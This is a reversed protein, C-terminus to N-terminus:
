KRCLILKRFKFYYGRPVITSVLRIKDNAGTMGQMVIREFEHHKAKEAKPFDQLYRVSDVYEVTGQSMNQTWFYRQVSAGKLVLPNNKDQNFYKRHVTMNLEGQWCHIKYQQQINNMKVVLGVNEQKLRPITENEKDIAKIEEKTFATTIGKTKNRDEWVNVTFAESPLTQKLLVVCVSMKVSEFVRKKKNDREPFSDIVVLQTNNLIHKRLENAQKDALFSNQFIYSVIGKNNPATLSNVAKALFLKYANLKGGLAIQFNKKDRKIEQIEDKHKGEYVFYPPNGIVVDFGKNNDFVESFM